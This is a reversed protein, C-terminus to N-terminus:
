GCSLQSTPAARTPAAGRGAGTLARGTQAGVKQTGGVGSRTSELEGTTVLSTLNRKKQLNEDRRDKRLQM